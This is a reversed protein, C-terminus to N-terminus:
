ISAPRANLRVTLAGVFLVVASAVIAPGSPLDWALSASLGGIVALAGAISACIAMAEPSRALPRAAAAPIILMATVLLVGVIKLAVAVSLAIMLTFLFRTRTVPVGEAGAMDEHVTLAILNRWHLALAVLVLVAGGYVMAVDNWSVALIDGFLYGFLDVRVKDMFSMAILGCALAAHSLIGLLTDAPIRRQRQLLLLLVGAGAGVVAMGLTPGVGLLLGLAVGTLGAHSLTDGFYAMRRWVIFCGLPGAALAVGIGALVARLLFSDTMTIDTTIAMIDMAM